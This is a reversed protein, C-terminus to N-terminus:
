PAWEGIIADRYGNAQDDSTPVGHSVWGYYGNQKFCDMLSDFDYEGFDELAQAPGGVWWGFEGLQPTRFEFRLYTGDPLLIISDPILFVSM